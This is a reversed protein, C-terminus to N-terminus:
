RLSVLFSTGSQLAHQFDLENAVVVDPTAGDASRDDARTVVIEMPTYIGLTFFGVLQNLFSLRTEVRAVGAPCREMTEVASPPVLGSIWSDAWKDTLTQTGPRLGTEVTAHFCGSAALSVLVVVYKAIGRM